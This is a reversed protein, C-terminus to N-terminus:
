FDWDEEEQKKTRRPTLCKPCRYHSDGQTKIQASPLKFDNKIKNILGKDKLICPDAFLYFKRTKTDYSVRGRPWEEYEVDPPVIGNRQFTDWLKTHTGDFIALDGYKEAESLPKGDMLIRGDPKLWFIGVEPGGAQKAKAYRRNRKDIEAIHALMKDEDKRLLKRETASLKKM